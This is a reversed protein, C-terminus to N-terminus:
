AANDSDSVYEILDVTQCNLTSCLAELTAIEIRTPVNNRLKIIASYSLGSRKALETAAMNRKAMMVKLHWQIGMRNDVLYM